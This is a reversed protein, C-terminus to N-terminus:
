GHKQGEQLTTSMRESKDKIVKLHGNAEELQEIVEELLEDTKDSM